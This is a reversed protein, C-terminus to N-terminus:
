PKKTAEFSALKPITKITKQQIHFVLYKSFVRNLYFGRMLTYMNLTNVAAM